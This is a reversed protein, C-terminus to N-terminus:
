GHKRGGEGLHVSRHYQTHPGTDQHHERVYSLFRQGPVQQMPGTNREQALLPHLRSSTPTMSAGCSVCFKADPATAPQACMPCKLLTWAHSAYYADLFERMEQLRKDRRRTALKELVCKVSLRM